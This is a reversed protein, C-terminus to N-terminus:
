KNGKGLKKLRFIVYVLSLLQVEKEDLIPESQEINDGINLFSLENFNFDTINEVSLVKHALKLTLNKLCNNLIYLVLKDFVKGKNFRTAEVLQDLKNRNGVLYNRTLLLCATSIEEQEVEKIFNM